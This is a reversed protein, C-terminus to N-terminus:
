SPAEALCRLPITLKHERESLFHGRSPSAVHLSRASLSSMRLGIRM